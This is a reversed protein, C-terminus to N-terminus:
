GNRCKADFVEQTLDCWDRHKLEIVPDYGQVSNNSIIKQSITAVNKCKSSACSRDQECAVGGKQGGELM